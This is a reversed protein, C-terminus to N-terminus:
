YRRNVGGVITNSRRAVPARHQQAVQAMVPQQSAPAPRKPVIKTRNNTTVHMGALRLVLADAKDPSKSTRKKMDAKPEIIIQENKNYTFRISALENALEEDDPLWVKKANILERINWYMEARRNAFMPKKEETGTAKNTLALASNNKMRKSELSASGFNVPIVSYNKHNNAKFHKLLTTVGGGVGGDDIRVKTNWNDFDILDLIRNSVIVEDQHHLVVAPSVFSGGGGYIVTRDDGFRAVDVGFEPQGTTLAYEDPHEQRKQRGWGDHDMVDMIAQLSLLADNAQNPFEGMVRAAWM